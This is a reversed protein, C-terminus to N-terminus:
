PGWKMQQAFPVLVENPRGDLYVIEAQGGQYTDQAPASVVIISSADPFWLSEHLMEFTGERIVTRGTVGDPGSRVIQLPIGDVNVNGNDSTAFFYYLQGDPALYPKNAYNITPWDGAVLTTVEGTVPDAEWLGAGYMGM